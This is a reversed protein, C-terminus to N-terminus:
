IEAAERGSDTRDFVDIELVTDPSNRRTVFRRVKEFAPSEMLM